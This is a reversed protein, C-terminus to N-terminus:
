NASVQVDKLDVTEGPRVTFERLIRVSPRLTTIRYTVGPVLGELTIRGQADTRFSNLQYSGRYINSLHVADAALLGRQTSKYDWRHPGPAFLADFPCRSRVLM